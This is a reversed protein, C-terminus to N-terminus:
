HTCDLKKKQASHSSHLTRQLCSCLLQSRVHIHAQPTPMGASNASASTRAPSFPTGQAEVDTRTDHFVCLTPSYRLSMLKKNEAYNDCWQRQRRVDPSVPGLVHNPPMFARSFSLLSSSFPQLPPPNEFFQNPPNCVSVSKRRNCAHGLWHM